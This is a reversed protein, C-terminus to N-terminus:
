TDFKKVKNIYHLNLPDKCKKDIIQRYRKYYTYETYLIKILEIIILLGFRGKM